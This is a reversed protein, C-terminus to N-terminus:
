FKGPNSLRYGWAMEKKQGYGQTKFVQFGASALARRVSSAAAFTAFTGGPHTNHVVAALVDGSWMAPNKAPAFGDLFWAHAKQPWATLADWVDQIMVQFILTKNQPLKLTVPGQCAGDYHSLLIQHAAPFRAAWPTTVHQLQSLSLPYKEVAVYYLASGPPAVRLWLDLTLLANLGTGFGLEGVTINQTMPFRQPLVNHRLFVFASEAVPDGPQFYVDDFVPSFAYGPALTPRANEKVNEMSNSITKLNDDSGDKM